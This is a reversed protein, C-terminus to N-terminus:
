ICATYFFFIRTKLIINRCRSSDQSSKEQILSLCVGSSEGCFNWFFGFWPLVSISFLSFIPLYEAQSSYDLNQGRMIHLTITIQSYMDFFRDIYVKVLNAKIFEYWCSICSLICKLVFRSPRFKTTPYRLSSDYMFHSYM